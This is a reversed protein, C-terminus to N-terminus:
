YVSSFMDRTGLYYYYYYALSYSCIVSPLKVRTKINLQTIEIM